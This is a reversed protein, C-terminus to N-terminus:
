IASISDHGYPYQFQWVISKISKDVKTVCGWNLKKKM